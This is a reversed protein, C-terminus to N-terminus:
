RWYANFYFYRSFDADCNNHNSVRNFYNRTNRKNRLNDAETKANRLEIDNKIIEDVLPIKSDQFKNKLNKIVREKGEETRLINIDIM